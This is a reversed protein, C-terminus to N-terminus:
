IGPRGFAMLATEKVSKIDPTGALQMVTKLEKYLPQFVSVVAKSGGLALAYLVPRKIGVLDAGSALAMFVDQARRVGSDFIVPVM